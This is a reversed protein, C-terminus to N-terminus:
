GECLSISASVISFANGDSAVYIYAGSAYLHECVYVGYNTCMHVHSLGQRLTREFSQHHMFGHSGASNGLAPNSGSIGFDLNLTPQGSFSPDLSLNVFM